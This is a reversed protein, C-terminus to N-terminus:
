RCITKDAKELMLPDKDVCTVPYLLHGLYAATQGTGRGADLIPEGPPPAAKHSRSQFLSGAPTLGGVRILVANRFIQEIASDEKKRLM